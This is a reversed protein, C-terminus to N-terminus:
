TALALIENRIKDDLINGIHRTHREITALRLGIADLALDLPKEDAMARGDYQLIMGVREAYGIFQCHHSTCYAQKGKYTVRYEFDRATGQRHQQPTRGVSVAFDDEWEDPIFRGTELKGNRRAWEQTNETGWRFSTRVPYGTVCSVNPFHELLEIQPALWNDYFLMDDDSYSVIAKPHALRFLATRATTKGVNPSLILVDPKFEYQLWDRLQPCSGNDWVTLSHELKAGERMTRLCTQVVELREAHYGELNPLHTVCALVLKHLRADSSELKKPNNGVRAM